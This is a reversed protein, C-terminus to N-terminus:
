FPIHSVSDDHRGFRKGCDHCKLWETVRQRRQLLRYRIRWTMRWWAGSDGIECSGCRCCQYAQPHDTIHGSWWCKLRNIM